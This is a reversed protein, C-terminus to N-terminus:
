LKGENKADQLKGHEVFQELKLKVNRLATIHAHLAERAEPHDIETEFFMAWMETECEVMAEQFSPSTLVNHANHAREIIHQELPPQKKLFFSFPNVM